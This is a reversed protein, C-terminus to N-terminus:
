GPRGPSNSARDATEINRQAENWDIAPAVEHDGLAMSDRARQIVAAGDPVAAGFHLEARRCIREHRAPDASYSRIGFREVLRDLRAHMAEHVLSAAVQSDSFSPNVIFTLEVLCSRTDSFYAGRCAFRKVVISAVDRKLHAYRAPQYREIRELIIAARAFVRETDIDERTNVVDVRMGDILRSDTADEARGGAIASRVRDLWERIM